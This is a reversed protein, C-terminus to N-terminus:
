AVQTKACCRRSPGYTLGPAWSCMQGLATAGCTPHRSAQRRCQTSPALVTKSRWEVQIAIRVEGAFATSYAEWKGEQGPQLRQGEPLFSFETGRLVEHKLIRVPWPSDNVLGGM